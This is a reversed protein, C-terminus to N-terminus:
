QSVIMNRNRYDEEEHEVEVTTSEEQYNIQLNTNHFLYSGDLIYFDYNLLRLQSVISSHHILNNALVSENFPLIEKRGIAHFEEKLSKLEKSDFKRISIGMEINLATQSKVPILFVSTSDGPLELSVFSHPLNKPHPVLSIESNLVYETTAQERAINRALNVPYKLSQNFRYTQKDANKRPINPPFACPM